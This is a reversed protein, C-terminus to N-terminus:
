RNEWLGTQRVLLQDAREPEAMLSKVVREMRMVQSGKVLLVDGARMVTQLVAEVQSADNVHTQRQDILGVQEAALAAFKMKPGVFIAFDCATAARKGVAQHGSETAAGLEAMDGLIAIRRGQPKLEALVDLAASTSAPSANYTDDIILSDKLGPILNMRGLPPVFELLAQSIEVLNRGRALGVAAAALASYVQQTGLVRPLRVPVTQGKYSIKFATGLPVGLGQLRQLTHDQLAKDPLQDTATLGIGRVDAENHIGFTMVTGDHPRMKSVRPDDANVIAIGSAPLAEIITAKEKAIAELSTFFELHSEGVNTVVSISPQAIAVLQALDGPHDMAMELVLVAPYHEATSGASGRALTRARRLLRWWGLLSRGPSPEGLITLPLGLENNYNGQSARVTEHTGLVAAIADKTSTKGVSGTVAVVVPKYRALVARAAEALQQELKVQFQRQM